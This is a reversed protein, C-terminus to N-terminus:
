KIMLMVGSYVVLGSFLKKLATTSIRDLLFAGAAGGLIAPLAYHSIGSLDLNGRAAYIICSVFSIPLMICLANAFIDKTSRIRDSCALSLAFVIVIGGGAGLLGNLIGAIIAMIPLFIPKQSFIKM